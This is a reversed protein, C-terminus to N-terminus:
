QTESYRRAFDAITTICVPEARLSNSTGSVIKVEVYQGNQPWARESAGHSVPIEAAPFFVRKNGDNRGTFDDGRKVTRGDVLV